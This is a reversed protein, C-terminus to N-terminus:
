FWSKKESVPWDNNFAEADFEIAEQKHTSNGSTYTTEKMFITKKEWDEAGDKFALVRDFEKYFLLERAYIPKDERDSELEIVVGHQGVFSHNVRMVIGCLDSNLYVHEGIRPMATVGKVVKNNQISVNQYAHVQMLYIEM